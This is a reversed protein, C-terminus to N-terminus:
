RPRARRGGCGEDLFAQAARRGGLARLGREGHEATFDALAHRRRARVRRAEVDVRERHADLAEVLEDIGQAPALSSVAVVPVERADLSRLAASFTAGPASALEGLDAKNVVLVDPIEMIGAKLFQLADGSGPQVVFRSPTSSTSSTPRARASASPRSSSARRLGRALVLSPPARRPRSGASSTRRTAMSRVFVGADDPDPAIRARDGLLAGGSRRSSPDVALVGVTRGRARLARM